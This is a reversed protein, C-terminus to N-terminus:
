PWCSVRFPWWRRCPAPWRRPCASTGCATAPPAGTWTAVLIAAAAVMGPVLALVAAVASQLPATLADLGLAGLIVPLFVLYVLAQAGLVLGDAVTPTGDASELDVPTGMRDELRAVHAGRRVVFGLGQALLWAVVGLVAATVLGPLLALIQSTLNTLPQALLEIGALDFFAALTFLLVTYFVVQGLWRSVPYPRGGAARGLARAAREDFGARELVRRTTRALVVALVWGILLVALSRAVAPLERGVAQAGAELADLVATPTPAPTAAPSAALAPPPPTAPLNAAPSPVPTAV